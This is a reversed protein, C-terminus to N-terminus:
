IGLEDSVAKLRINIETIKGMLMAHERECDTNRERLIRLEDHSHKLDVRLEERMESSQKWIESRRNMIKNVIALGVTTMMASILAIVADSMKLSEFIFNYFQVIRDLMSLSENM